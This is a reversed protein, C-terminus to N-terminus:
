NWAEESEEQVVQKVVKKSNAMKIDSDKAPVCRSKLVRAEGLPTIEVLTMYWMRLM